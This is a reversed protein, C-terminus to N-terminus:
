MKKRPLEVFITLIEDKLSAGCTGGMKEALSKAIALGLGTNSSSRVKDKTFYKEFLHSADEETINTARNSFRFRFSKEDSSQNLSISFDGEGHSLGNSIINSFIRKVAEQDALVPMVKEEIQVQMEYNKKEFDMYYMALVSTLVKRIDVEEENWGLSDSELRTYYFLQDVLNRSTEFRDEVVNLYRLKEEETLDMDKLMGTYGSAATLPTRLDHSIEALSERVERNKKEATVVKQRLDRLEGNISNILPNLMKQGSSNRVLQNTEEHSMEQVQSAINRLSLKLRILYIVLLLLAISLGIVAFIM